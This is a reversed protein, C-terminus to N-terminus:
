GTARSRMTTIVMSAARAVTACRQEISSTPRRPDRAVNDTYSVVITANEAADIALNCGPDVGTLSYRFEVAGYGDITTIRPDQYGESRGIYLPDQPNVQAIPNQPQLRVSWFQSIDSRWTCSDSTGDPTDREGPGVGLDSRQEASLADCAALRGVPLEGPRAPFPGPGGDGGSCATAAALLLVLVLVPPTRRTM